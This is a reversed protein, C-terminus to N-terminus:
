WPAHSAVAFIHSVRLLRLLSIVKTPASVWVRARVRVRIRVRVRVRVRARAPALHAEYTRSDLLLVWREGRGRRRTVAGERGERGAEGERGYPLLSAVGAEGECWVGAEGERGCPVLAVDVRHM